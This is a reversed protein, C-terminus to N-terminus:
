ECKIKLAQYQSWVEKTSPSDIKKLLSIRGGNKLNLISGQMITKYTVVFDDPHTQFSLNKQDFQVDYLPYMIGGDGILGSFDEIWGQYTNGLRFLVVEYGWEHEGDSDVKSWKGVVEIPNDPLRDRETQCNVLEDLKKKYETASHQRATVFERIDPKLEAPAQKFAKIPSPRLSPWDSTFYGQMVGDHLQGVFHHFMKQRGTRQNMAWLISFTLDGNPTLRISEVPLIEYPYKKFHQPNPYGFSWTGGLKNDQKYLVIEPTGYPFSTSDVYVGIIELADHQAANIESASAPKGCSTLLMVAALMLYKM